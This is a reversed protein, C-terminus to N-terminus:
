VIGMLLFGGVPSFYVYQTWPHFEAIYVPAEFRVSRLISGEQLDWINCKWDQSATLL